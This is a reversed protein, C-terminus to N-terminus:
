GTRIITLWNRTIRNSVSRKFYRKAIIRSIRTSFKFCLYPKVIRHYRNNANPQPGVLWGGMQAFFIALQSAFRSERPPEPIWPQPLKKGVETSIGTSSPQLHLIPWTTQSVLVKLLVKEICVMLWQPFAGKFAVNEICVLKLHMKLCYFIRGKEREGMSEVYM